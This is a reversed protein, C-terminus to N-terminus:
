LEKKMKFHQISGFLLYSEGIIHYGNKKYFDVAFSRADLVISTAGKQKGKEELKKLIKSGIGKNQHSKEVAMFRIQAEQPSNFHLRGIGILDDKESAIIHVSQADLDDHESGKPQKWPKRLLRWRLDYYQAFEKPTTPESVKMVIKIINHYRM